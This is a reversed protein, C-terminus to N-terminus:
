RISPIALMRQHETDIRVEGNARGSLQRELALALGEARASSLASLPRALRAIVADLLVRRLRDSIFKLAAFFPILVFAFRADYWGGVLLQAATM